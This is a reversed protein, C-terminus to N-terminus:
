AGSDLRELFLQFKTESREVKAWRELERLDVPHAQAVALAQEFGQPDDDYFFWALRDKVCDTPSLIRLTGVVTERSAFDHLTEEGVTVPGAPFEVWFQTDPHIWHRQKKEFGLAEMAPAVRAALGTNIFDLDLSAFTNPAYISAAAGGSLVVTVGHADLRACM